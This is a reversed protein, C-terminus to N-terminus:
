KIKQIYKPRVIFYEWFFLGLLLVSRLWSYGLHKRYFNFNYKVLSSKNASMSAHHVRYMALDEQLGLAPKESRKIAELWVGWDQRKRLEPAVIKGIRAAHYMGTLNGIYNNRLQKVYSLKPLAKIRRNLSNGEADIQTYNSYSVAIDNAQMFAVQKALKDSHWLDDADLFAIFDGKALETAKNRCVAAGLNEMNKIIRIRSDSSAFSEAIRLSSDTSADDVILHEWHQYSQKRISKITESIFSVANYLPTIISVLPTDAENIHKKKEELPM